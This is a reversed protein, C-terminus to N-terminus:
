GRDGIHFKGLRAIETWACDELHLYVFWARAFGVWFGKLCLALFHSNSRSMVYVWIEMWGDLELDLSIYEGAAKIGACGFHLWIWRRTLADWNPTWVGVGGGAASHGISARIGRVCPCAAM